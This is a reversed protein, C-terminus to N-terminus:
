PNPAPTQTPMPPLPIMRPSVVPFNFRQGVTSDTEVKTVTRYHGGAGYAILGGVFLVAVIAVLVWRANDQYFKRTVYRTGRAYPERPVTTMTM